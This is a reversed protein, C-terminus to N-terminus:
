DAANTIEITTRSVAGNRARADRPPAAMRGVGTTTAGVIRPDERWYTRGHVEAHAPRRPEYRLVWRPRRANTKRPVRTRMTMRVTKTTWRRHEACTGRIALVGTIGDRIALPAIGSASHDGNRIPVRTM